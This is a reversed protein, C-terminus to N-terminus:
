AQPRVANMTLLEYTAATEGKDTTIEVDWRVEGYQKNRPSKDKATLRVRIAEGPQIPKLFRLSDLGYNALVPGPDPDVFLGAAFSLLLYGHAVRGPFFPHGRTAEEDMHAYFTDGTFHAFHEIDDLTVTRDKSIFTQGIALDEFHYRFPHREQTVQPAGKIWSGTVGTLMRPSGQLATRQMYHSLSRVGGLEEGGGARGPGGHVMHPMPSGHGTQEKACDRDILVLRGHFAGIGFVLDSAVRPDHTYVSAVLSGGGRNALTIAQDLGDYGMVTAVPGFAEVSHVAQARVPDACHLLLPPIFAGRVKDAGEVAFNDPDGAVLEAEQRLKAVHALVDRRQSQGVVPGMRVTELEPNGIQIKALRERLADIVASVHGAPALARRIATCKQGAKVTMEKAVEKIFLDFEPTGPAADPALIAANLSDREAVFRVAERAIVPHRQLMESTAASGTFSVADQCTLHDFLDGTPGVVFQLAGGPLIGSAQIMRVLAHAVYATVTAPKTVVPVGALLAPAFKELLGWCPFNFANIHVAVGQLSTVIHQGAFAGTKGLPEVAGDLLFTSNPLERRGKSAYVFLTGIGGDIDIMNDTRTAGTQFSLKYLEDKRETLYQALRKLLDARQHFTLRRLAPGGVSRAYNLIEAMDLGGVNADAVVDGTVASRIDILDRGPAAWHGRVFSELKM